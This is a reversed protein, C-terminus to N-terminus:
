PGNKNIKILKNKHYDDLEHEILSRIDLLAIQAKNIHEELVIYYSEIRTDKDQLQTNNILIENANEFDLFFNIEKVLNQYSTLFAILAHNFRKHKIINALCQEIIVLDFQMPANTLIFTQKKISLRKLEAIDKNLKEIRNDHWFLETHLTYLLGQYYDKDKINVYRHTLWAALFAALVAVIAASVSGIIQGENRIWFSIDSNSM